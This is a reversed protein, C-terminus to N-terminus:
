CSGGAPEDLNTITIPLAETQAGVVVTLTGTASEATGDCDADTGTGVFTATGNTTCGGLGCWELDSDITFQPNARAAPDDLDPLRDRPPLDYKRRDTPDSM